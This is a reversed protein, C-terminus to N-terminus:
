CAYALLVHTFPCETLTMFDAFLLKCLTDNENFGKGMVAKALELIKKPTTLDEGFANVPSQMNMQNTSGAVLQLYSHYMGQRTISFVHSAQGKSNYSAVAKITKRQAVVLWSWVGGVDWIAFCCLFMYMM